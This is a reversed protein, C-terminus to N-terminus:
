TMGWRLGHQLCIPRIDCPDVVALSITRLRQPDDRWLREIQVHMAVADPLRTSADQPIRNQDVALRGEVQLVRALATHSSDHLLWTADHLQECCALFRACRTEIEHQVDLSDFTIMVSEIQEAECQLSQGYESIAESLEEKDAPPESLLLASACRANHNLYDACSAKLEDISSSLMAQDCSEECRRVRWDVEVVTERLSRLATLIDAATSDLGHNPELGECLDLAQPAPITSALPVEVANEGGQPSRSPWWSFPRTRRDDTSEEVSHTRYRRVAIWNWATTWPLRWRWSPPWDFVLGGAQHIALAYGLGFNTVAIVFVILLYLGAGRVSDNTAGPKGTPFPGRKELRLVPAVASCTTRLFGIGVKIRRRAMGGPSQCSGCCGNAVGQGNAVVTIDPPLGGANRALPGPPDRMTTGNQFLSRGQRFHSEERSRMM